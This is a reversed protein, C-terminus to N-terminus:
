IPLLSPLSSRLSPLFVFSIHTAPEDIDWTAESGVRPQSHLGLLGLCIWLALAPM